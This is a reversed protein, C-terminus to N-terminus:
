FRFVWHDRTTRIKQVNAHLEKDETFIEFSTKAAKWHAMGPNSMCRGLVGVIYCKLLCLVGLWKHM